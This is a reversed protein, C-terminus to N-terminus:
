RATSALLNPEEKSADQATEAENEEPGFCTWFSFSNSKNQVPATDPAISPNASLHQNMTQHSTHVEAVEEQNTKQKEQLHELPQKKFRYVNLMIMCAQVIMLTVGVAPNLTLGIALLLGGSILIAGLNYGLSMFLNQKINAVTQKSIAFASVIPSLTETYVVADAKQQTIDDSGNSAIAISFNSAAFAQADNAADGIMAVLKGSNRVTKIYETKLTADCGAYIKTIGLTLAYRAATDKDAGTCLHIEKGMAKLTNITQRADNRLPDTLVMFGIVVKNRAIYILHDGDALHPLQQTEPLTIEEQQMLTRSGLTYNNELIQGTIGSHHQANLQTVQQAQPNKAQAYSYIAKGIPHASDKELAACYAMLDSESLESPGLLGFQTVKPIGTTLTGNLDFIVTDIQEAQQLTKASKFQVGHEAAKHMGTKVALPTILGLTCPCASVLVSVACQIALAPTFFIGVAIGSIVALALVAPIFYGLLKGTQLEIPAKEQSAKEIGKDLRALYSEQYTKSVRLTLPRANEALRMGALVAKQALVSRPLIDGTIITKYVSTEEECIGDLPIIEGPQVIILDNAKIHKLVTNEFGSRTKLRVTKPARDQFKASSIKEKISDEIAIGIHRFGYILLGADFMMPLGPIFLSAISVILIAATSLAFLSDMTLTSTKRWKSWADYYSNAGLILTLLTSFGAIAIMASMPLAGAALYVILVAAGAICGITGLFWHSTLLKKLSYDPKVEQENISQYDVNECSFGIDEIYEKLEDWVQSYERSEDTLVVTTRKPDPTTIDVDFSLFRQSLQNELQKKVSGSCSVCTMGNIYLTYTQSM